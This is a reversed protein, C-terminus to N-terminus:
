GNSKSENNFVTEDCDSLPWVSEQDSLIQKEVDEPAPPHVQDEQFQGTDGEGHIPQHVQDEHAHHSDLDSESTSYDVGNAGPGRKSPPVYGDSSSESEAARQAEEAKKKARYRQMNKRVKERRRQNVELLNKKKRPM